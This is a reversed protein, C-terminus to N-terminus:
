EPFGAKRLGVVLKDFSEPSTRRVYLARMTSIRANPDLAAQAALFEAAKDLRGALAHAAIAVRLSPGFGPRMQLAATARAAAEDYQDQMLHGWARAHDAVWMWPDRPSLRSAQELNRAADDWRDFANNCMGLYTWALALNPDLHLAKELLPLAEGHRRNGFMLVSAYTTLVTADNADLGLARQAAKEAVLSDAAPDASASILLRQIRIAAILAHCRAHSPDLALSAEALSTADDSTEATMTAYAAKARLYLDYADLNGTKRIAREIEATEIAPSIVSAVKNAIRDQLEFVDELRGDFRDAWIHAGSGADILQGTIRVNGGAKRVSGELVYRVALERGVRRVDVAEGKYTFSSNRAIVFLGRDRSLATIIDEVMGDAFYEQDPDGSMNQFPLVAISPKDPLALGPQAPAASTPSPAAAGSVVPWDGADWTVQYARVPREINKLRLDGLDDFTAKLRGAVADHLNGSILVGGPPAEGELRAAVNVGDGYIDDGEVILDGLHVGMRFVLVSDKPQDRNVQAIAQQFEIAASVAEVASPFEALAGDGTLKVIRGGRRKLIPELRETRHARLRSLTGSEDRGMLRSYGVVDAAVIAALRRQDTM